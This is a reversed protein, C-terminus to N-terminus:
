GLKELQDVVESAKVQHTYSTGISTWAVTGDTDIIFVAASALGDGFRDFRGYLFPVYPDRATYLIPFESGFSAVATEAGRLDDTSIAIVQGGAAAIDDYGNQLEM